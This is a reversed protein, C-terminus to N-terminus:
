SPMSAPKKRTKEDNGLIKPPFPPGGGGIAGPGRTKLIEEYKGRQQENLLQKTKEVASEFLRDRDERLTDFEIAFGSALQEFKEKQADTLLGILAEERRRELDKAKDFTQHVESRVGEWIERVQERQAASLELEDGLPSRDTGRPPHTNSASASPLKAVLLGGVIGAGLALAAVGVILLEIRTRRM